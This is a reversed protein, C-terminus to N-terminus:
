SLSHYYHLHFVDREVFSPLNGGLSSLTCCSGTDMKRTFLSNSTGIAFLRQLVIYSHTATCRPKKGAARVRVCASFTVTCFSHAWCLCSVNCRRVHKNACISSIRVGSSYRPEYSCFLQHVATPLIEKVIDHMNSFMNSFEQVFKLTTSSPIDIYIRLNWRSKTTTSKIGPVNYLVRLLHM